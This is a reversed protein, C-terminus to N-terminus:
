NNQMENVTSWKGNVMIKAGDSVVRVAGDLDTRFIKANIRELKKITRLSPHSFSNGMGVSIVAIRPLVAKLFDESSATDSGHHGVKLVDASLNIKAKLLEQEVPVEADGVFLFKNEGYILKFVMSSLNLNDFQKNLFSERPYLIALVCKKSEQGSSSAVQESTIEGNLNIEQPHDIIVVPIKKDRVAELWALYNPSNHAAGTYLIKGVAYRKIVDTLGAVHDDHPHTLIMLDIKKDWWPLVKGLEKIVSGDPGGDVLINQGAPTKILASDGQGVNLFDVELNKQPHYFYWFASFLLVLALLTSTIILLPKFKFSMSSTIKLKLNLILFQNFIEFKL